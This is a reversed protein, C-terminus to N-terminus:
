FLTIDDEAGATQPPSPNADDAAAENRAPAAAAKQQPNRLLFESVLDALQQAMIAFERGIGSAATSAEAAEEAIGQVQQLSTNIEGARAHHTETAQAVKANMDTITDVAAIIEALAGGAQTALQATTHARDRGEAMRQVVQKASTQLQAIRNRIENTQVNVKTSLARVEDAVVAFGRGAEGARAAEIAANLALLNTQDTIATIVSVIDGIGESLMNLAEIATATEDTDAAVQRIAAVTRDMIQRGDDAEHSAQRAAEAARSSHETIGELTHTMDEFTQGMTQIQRSQLSVQQHTNQTVESLTSSEKVLNDSSQVVLDIVGKIKSVFGNFNQALLGFEDQSHVPLTQELDGREAINAMAQQARHLPRIVMRNLLALSVLGLVLVQIGLAILANTSDQMKSMHSANAQDLAATQLAVLKDLGANLDEELPGIRTKILYVDRRWDPASHLTILGKLDDHMTQRLALINELADQQAFNLYEAQAALKDLNNHFADNNIYIEPVTQANHYALFTQVVRSMNLWYKRTEALLALVQHHQAGDAAQEEEFIMVELYNLVTNFIPNSKERVWALAPTRAEPSEAIHLFDTQLAKIEGIHQEIEAILARGQPNDQVVPSQRLRDLPAQLHQLSDEYRRRYRPNADLLYFGQATTIDKIYGKLQLAADIAPQFDHMVRHLSQQAQNQSTFVNGGMAFLVLAIGAAGLWLKQRITYRDFIRSRM